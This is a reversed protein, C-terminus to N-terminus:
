SRDRVVLQQVGIFDEDAARRRFDGWDARQIAALEAVVRERAVELRQVRADHAALFGRM